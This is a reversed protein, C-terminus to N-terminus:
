MLSVLTPQLLLRLSMAVLAVAVCCAPIWLSQGPRHLALLLGALATILLAKLVVLAAGGISQFLGYVILDYLWPRNAGYVGATTFALPDADLPFDGHAILRGAALHMWFDSNRVTSSAVLFALVLVVLVIARDLWRVWIALQAATMPKRPQRRPPPQKIP